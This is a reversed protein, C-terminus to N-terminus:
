FKHTVGTKDRHCVGFEAIALGKKGSIVPGEICVPFGEDDVCCIGCVGFGCKMYREISIEAPIRYEKAIKAVAKQMLEPGCTYVKLNKADKKEELLDKLVETIYGKHELSGDDTSIHVNAGATKMRHEFLINDADQAGVLFHVTHDDAIANDTLFALPAAGYGGGVTILETEKEYQYETGYPGSIGVKDGEKMKFLAQTANGREFITLQFENETDSGISFPKQDIGPIWLMVFQGPKSALAYEFTFTRVNKTEQTISKIAIMVPSDIRKKKM